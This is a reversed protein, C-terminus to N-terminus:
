QYASPDVNQITLRERFVQVTGSQLQLYNQQAPSNWAPGQSFVPLGPNLSAARKLTHDELVGMQVELSVPLANSTMVFGVEGGPSPYPPTFWTNNLPTQVGFTYGNTMLTGNSDYARVVLHVVGDILHSMNNSTNLLAENAYGNNVAEVFNNFLVAPNVTINTTSYYRYLPYLSTASATDVFYGVGTWQTNQRGLVFFWQLLNTRALTGGPLSQVLPLYSQGSNTVFFNIGPGPFALTGSLGGASLPSAVGASLGDSPVAGRLDATILEMAAHGGQLVDTQTVSARFARQTSSFVSMLSLIILSLISVVVLVEILTFACRRSFSGWGPRRGSFKFKLISTNIKM